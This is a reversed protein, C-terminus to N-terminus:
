RSPGYLLGISSQPLESFPMRLLEVGDSSVVATLEMSVLLHLLRM